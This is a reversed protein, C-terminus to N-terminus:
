SVRGPSSMAMGDVGGFVGPDVGFEDVAPAGDCGGVLHDEWRGGVFRLVSGGDFAVHFCDKVAWRRCGDFVGVAEPVAHGSGLVVGGILVDQLEDRVQLERVDAVLEHSVYGADVLWGFM